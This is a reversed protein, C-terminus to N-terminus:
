RLQSKEVLAIEEYFTQASSLAPLGGVIKPIKGGLLNNSLDIYFLLPLSWLWAPIPGTFRNFSLDMAQLNKLNALWAPIPGSLRCGGLSLTQLNDFRNSTTNDDEPIAEDMFNSSLILTKLYKCGMLIKIAGKINTLKNRSVSFYSLLRLALIESLIQGELQNSALRVSTLSHCSYLGLPITGAFYNNGLDLKQLKLLRSFNFNSLEGQFYNVRINLTVLNTCNSLTSPLSGTLNNIHLLLHELNSLKGIDQPIFGTFVNSYLELIKLNTLNGIGNSISGSLHNGPLSIERLSVAKYLDEPILGSLNNLGARFVMLQLCEELGDPLQGSFNNSSFDLIKIFPSSNTCVSSPIPGTFSNNSVNFSTLHKALQFFSTPIQGDFENSSLDVTEIYIFPNFSPFQGSLLNYSLDLTKLPILFPIFGKDVPGSLHNYSLNLHQLQTLNWIYPAFGGTLGRSPLSVNIVNGKADCIIGEWHCCSISASWNLPPSSSISLSFSLLSEQDLQNCAYNLSLFCSFMCFLTMILRAMAAIEPNSVLPKNRELNTLNSLEDPIKGSFNNNDLDLIHLNELHGIEAPIEGSLSNGGLYMAPPLSYLHNYQLVYPTANWPDIFVPIELHSRKIVEYFTLTSSLAPLGGISKPIKGDLLNNSLDIYYLSPLSWLWAPIPGTLRNQSLDMVQLNKLNALWAPISGSLQCGGIGLTQLNDFRNSKKTNEDEPIAENMFNGSLILATLYKCGMFIKIAGKINTLNNRSVSFYSLLPLALIESLIQGQLQNSDLRVATLSHCSHLGLPITGTFNNNGLDLKQLKLLRSFNFNSLEGEFINVRLNLTVLNTCNSLSSPLSGTLNNIHLLLYELNSLKGIDQPILGTFENGYLELIKLNTLNGIGNNISGSLHNVPLSIEQLSVANYMDEPILGTLNNLGARFVMLQSCEELGDPLQGSFDNVSFDLIKILSSSNSCLSSPIPGTFTNHSVNFSTLHKSSQFFSTPIVGDFKNSSLDVTELYIFPHFSPLKGSLLNYSLDITKLPILFPIFGTDAPGSLHNYSLNLYHLQTLNWIYPAFGGTLGRSPLSLNIVNGKADCIIGDWHCCSISSSWNLPPSSSINLSFSLLSEQDLQNCAYNLSLFCSLMCFLSLFLRAMAATEPNSVLPKNTFASGGGSPIAGQLNNDAVSFWSLFHLVRLSSPIEGSLHNGSLDLSELNTLNSLEDPIKGGLNNDSLNLIHLYKLHGIEAPMEGSLSNGGLYIAPPLSSLQLYQQNLLTTFLPLELHSRKMVEYFTQASSLAPLGGIDKPINGGLLNNSLDIYFLSPLSWLWAPIPGNLRNDSLDMVQLNKLNALWAPIPGSLQCGAISLTQLNDFRNSQTTNDDEPIAENMFNSSLLLTTLYKCGMLIKIAGKINTLKNKSVSFYSLLRLALIEPLIQGELQNGALRVSTLSHCSYLGLPITGTFNNRGLDLQQLKLLRSFNFNSLEGEFYNFGLNLTVLNTCNSLSPPISGTMSNMHLILNELNSLKGIDQPILGTFENRYLELIKLNTLNGIGNSIKGSLDNVPISIEQLSVAKYMDEPILGTLYNFGARFVMLQSCEELGDPLQGNNSSLDVTEIDVFQHFSPLQGSLLNYSLDITKLPILFPIFGTDVPGSLHDYSLNLHHLQTLNWVYPAFRGTLGRSPLSLNIVNGNSDCIIGEWHCCSISSSWNLPPSSSINLSFSMLSEQDLHNCAYNLSLFFSLMCFHTLILRAMAATEPNSVLPKNRELNTLNSLEDPIKGGLNNDRLNLIHLSKLNGIEAPIEGSLSNGGICIGPPISYLQNYELHPIENWLDVFLPFELHSRKIVEYFTLTSSLAPVGGISKPIKGSLLNNSFDIYYLSPLSWLWAPIPGTFRNQSLDMTQLNKMNALWAPVPGSLQCGSLGLTQLNDFRNSQTTNDDEPIAENMFNNSLLLTTLYKCGMLIRIAGNINTLKNRSVSFYSLLRLALIEPLIQGELQNAALRVATLSHCSYLGLPITGTFNNSGLDLQQLKLLRSFNFNSLEGEFYNFGLNLTVLNTCNSLPSPLSGTMNNMHLLLNGLNSLKGIDQPILGTFENRYLELSKLNTLNGIGNSINGSLHNVPISIEQLSVAKYLDEPILGSLNNFGARFVMLQLCEELGDPLQGNNSSLDVTEIDVFQHFSPLQGSLLNYSLDLTQLPILFPIFGTDVPGSLHNYSLNLHHLQTLNWIYPAFSGTLGRSPLSINIVSGKSNCIIGEWHCCSISSSWNLPPSSSISLSFSLLSEQDLHNCAYNFSLFFSLMCFHTLILRAMAATEPNSVLPKNRIDISMAKKM